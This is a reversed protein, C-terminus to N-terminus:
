VQESAHAMTKNLNSGGSIKYRFRIRPEYTSSYQPQILDSPRPYISTSVEVASIGSDSALASTISINYGSGSKVITFRCFLKKFM